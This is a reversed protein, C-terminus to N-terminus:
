GKSSFIGGSAGGLLDMLYSEPNQKTEGTQHNKVATNLIDAQGKLLTSMNTLSKIDYSYQSEVSYVRDYVDNLTKLVNEADTRNSVTMLGALNGLNVKSGDLVQGAAVDTDVMNVLVQNMSSGGAQLQIVGDGNMGASGNLLQMGNFSTSGTIDVLESALKQLNGQMTAFDSASLDDRTSAEIAIQKMEDLKSKIATVGTQAQSVMTAADQMNQAGQVAVRSDLNLRGTFARTTSQPDATGKRTSAAIMQNYMLETIKSNMTQELLQSTDFIM